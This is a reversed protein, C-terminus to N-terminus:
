RVLPSQGRRFHLGLLIPRIDEPFHMLAYAPGTNSDTSENSFNHKISIKAWVHPLCCFLHYMDPMCSLSWWTGLVLVMTHWGRDWESLPPYIEQPWEWFGSSSLFVQYHRHVAERSLNFDLREFTDGRFLDLIKRPLYWRYICFEM